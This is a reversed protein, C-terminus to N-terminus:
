FFFFQSVELLRRCNLVKLFPQQTATAMLLPWRVRIDPLLIGPGVEESSILKFSELVEAVPSEPRSCRMASHATANWVAYRHGLDALYFSLASRNGLAFQRNKANSKMSDSEYEM